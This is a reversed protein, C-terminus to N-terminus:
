ERHAVDACVVHLQMHNKLPAIARTEHHCPESHTTWKQHACALQLLPNLSKEMRLAFPNNTDFVVRSIVMYTGQRIKKEKTGLM